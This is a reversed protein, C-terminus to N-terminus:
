GVDLHVCNLYLAFKPGTQHGSVNVNEETNAAGPYIISLECDVPVNTVITNGRSLHVHIPLEHSPRLDYLIHVLLPLELRHYSLEGYVLLSNSGVCLFFKFFCNLRQHNLDPWIYKM